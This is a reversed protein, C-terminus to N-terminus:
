NYQGEDEAIEFAAQLEAESADPYQQKLIRISKEYYEDFDMTDWGDHELSWEDRLTDAMTNAFARNLYERIIYRLQSETLRM